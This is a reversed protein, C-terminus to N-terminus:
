SSGSDRGGDAAADPEAQRQEHYPSRFPEVFLGLQRSLAAAAPCPRFAGVYMSYDYGIHVFAEAGELRCWFEERLMRRVVEGVEALHLLSGEAFSLPVAAQNELGAVALTLVGAEQLFAVAAEAY